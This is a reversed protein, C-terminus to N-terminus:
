APQAALLVVLDGFAPTSSEPRTSTSATMDGGLSRTFIQQMADM